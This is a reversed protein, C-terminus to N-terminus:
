LSLVQPTVVPGGRVAADLLGAAAALGGPLPPTELLHLRHQDSLHAVRPLADPDMRPVGSLTRGDWRDIGSAIGPAPGALVLRGEPGLTALAQGAAAPDCAAHLAVDLGRRGTLRRVVAPVDDVAPDLSADAGRDPTTARAVEDPEVAVVPAAGLARAVALAAGGLAGAGWVGVSEGPVLRAHTLISLARAMLPLRAGEAPSLGVPLPLLAEAPAVLYDALAGDHEVGPLFSSRRAWVEPRIVVPLGLPWGDVGVGVGAVTGVAHRGLTRRGAHDLLVQRHGTRPEGDSRDLAVATVRVLVQGMAPRVRRIEEVRVGSGDFRVASMIPIKM